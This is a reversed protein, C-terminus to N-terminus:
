ETMVDNARAVHVPLPCEVPVPLVLEAFVSIDKQVMIEGLKARRDAHIKRIMRSREAVEDEVDRATHSKKRRFINRIHLLSLSPWSHDFRSGTTKDNNARFLPGYTPLCACVISVCPEINSWIGIMHEDETTM